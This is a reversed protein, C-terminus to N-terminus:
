SQQGTASKADMESEHDQSQQHIGSSMCVEPEPLLKRYAYETTDSIGYGHPDRTSLFNHLREDRNGFGASETRRKTLVKSADDHVMEVQRQFINSYDGVRLSQGFGGLFVATLVLTLFGGNSFYVPEQKGKDREYWREWDEWTANRFPSDNTDFGSWRAGNDQGWQYRPADHDPRGNWGAGSTDYASRKVPDSLIEHAAVILRYREMKVVGPLSRTKSHSINYGHRDPHYIKALEYFRHKSYQAGKKLRLIQYPTPINTTSETKPWILEDQEGDSRRSHVTTHYRSQSGEKQCYGTRLADQHPGTATRPSSSAHSISSINSYSSHLISPKKLM